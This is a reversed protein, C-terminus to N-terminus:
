RTARGILKGVLREFREYPGPAARLVGDWTWMAARGAATDVVQVVDPCRRTRTGDRTTVGVQGYLTRRGGIMALLSRVDALPLGAIEMEDAVATDAGGGRDRSAAVARDVRDAPLEVFRGPVPDADPWCGLLAAAAPASPEDLLLVGDALVTRVTAEAGVAVMARQEASGLATFRSDLLLPAREVLRLAAVLAPDPIGAEDLIGARALQTEAEDIQAEPDDGAYGPATHRWIMPPEGLEARRWVVGLQAM